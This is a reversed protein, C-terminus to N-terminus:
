MGLAVSGVTVSRILAPLFVSPTRREYCGEGRFVPFVPVPLACGLSAQVRKEGEVCITM